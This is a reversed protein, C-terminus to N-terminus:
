VTLAVLFERIRVVAGEWTPLKRYRERAALSMRALLGRDEHLRLILECLSDVDGPAILFGNVGEDIIARAGDASSIAPLGFAMGEGYVIGYGELFSPVAIVQNERYRQALETDSLRGLRSVRDGLAEKSILGEILEGYSPEFESSGIVELRATQVPLRSMVELLYVLGKRAILNGVYLLRLPGAREARALIESETIEAHLRDCGPYVIISPKDTQLLSEVESKTAASAYILADVSNLYRREFARVVKNQWKGGPESSDLHHVIVVKPLNKLSGNLHFLPIHLVEDQLVLHGPKALWQRFESSGDDVFNNPYRRPLLVVQVEDGNERLHELVKQNYILGGTVQGPSDPGIFSIRM